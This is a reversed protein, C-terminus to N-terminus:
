LLIYLPFICHNNLLHSGDKPVPIHESHVHGNLSSASPLLLTPTHIRVLRFDSKLNTAIHFINLSFRNAGVFYVTEYSIHPKAYIQGSYNNCIM